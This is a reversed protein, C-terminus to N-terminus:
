FMGMGRMSVEASAKNKEQIMRQIEELWFRRTKFTMMNVDYYTLDGYHVLQILEREIDLEPDRYLSLFDVVLQPDDVARVFFTSLFYRWRNSTTRM